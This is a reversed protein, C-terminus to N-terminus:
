KGTRAVVYSYLKYSAPQSEDFQYDIAPTQKLKVTVRRLFANGSNTAGPLNVDSAPPNVEAVYAIEEKKRGNPDVPVAFANFYFRQKSNGATTQSQDLSGLIQQSIRSAAAVDGAKRINNLGQPLLSLLTTIGFAAIGLALTVEALSFGKANVKRLTLHTKM